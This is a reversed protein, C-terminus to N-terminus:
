PLFSSLCLPPGCWCLLWPFAPKEKALRSDADAGRPDSRGPRRTAAQNGDCRSPIFFTSQGLGTADEQAQNTLRGKLAYVDAEPDDADPDRLRRRLAQLPGAQWQVRRGSPSGTANCSPCAFPIKMSFAERRMCEISYWNRGCSRIAYYLLCAEQPKQVGRLSAVRRVLGTRSGGWCCHERSWRPNIMTNVTAWLGGRLWPVVAQAPLHEHLRQELLDDVALDPRALVQHRLGQGPPEADAM